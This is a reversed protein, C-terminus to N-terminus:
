EYVEGKFYLKVKILTKSVFWLYHYNLWAIIKRNKSRDKYFKKSKYDSINQHCYDIMKKIVKKKNKNKHLSVRNVSTILIHEFILQSIIEKDFFNNIKANDIIDDMVILMDLNKVSNNNSM